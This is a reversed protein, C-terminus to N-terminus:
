SEEIQEVFAEINTVTQEESYCRIDNLDGNIVLHPIGLRESLRSPIGWRTNTNNPCTKADHYLIGDVGFYEVKDAIYNEKRTDDMGIFISSYARAMSKFPDEPDFDSFVWSSCYTSVLICAKLRSFLESM